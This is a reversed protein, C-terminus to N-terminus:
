FEQLEIIKKETFLIIQLKIVLTINDIAASVDGMEGNGERKRGMRLVIVVWIEAVWWWWWWDGDVDWGGLVM